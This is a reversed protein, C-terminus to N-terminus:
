PRPVEQMPLQLNASPAQTPPPEDPGDVGNRVRSVAQHVIQRVREPCLNMFRAVEPVSMGGEEAVDLACTFDLDWIQKGPFNFRLTGTVENVDLFLHHRCSVFPCPRVSKQCEKRTKPRMLEVHKQYDDM